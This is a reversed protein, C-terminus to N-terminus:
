SAGGAERGHGESMLAGVIVALIWAVALWWSQWAGFSLSGITMYGTAAACAAAATLRPRAAQGAWAFIWAVLAAMLATGPLGLELRVQLAGNHPHLPMVELFEM